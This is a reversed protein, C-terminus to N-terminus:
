LRTELHCPRFIQSITFIYSYWEREFNRRLSLRALIRLLLQFNIYGLEHLTNIIAEAKNSREPLSFQAKLIEGGDELSLVISVTLVGVSSSSSSSSSLCPLKESVGIRHQDLGVPDRGLCSNELHSDASKLYSKRIVNYVFQLWEEGSQDVLKDPKMHNYLNGQYIKEGSMATVNLSEKGEHEDLVACLTFGDIETIM